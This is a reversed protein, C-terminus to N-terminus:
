SFYSRIDKLSHSHKMKNNPSNAKNGSTVVKKSAPSLSPKPINDSKITNIDIYQKVSGGQDTEDFENRKRKEIDQKVAPMKKFFNVIPSTNKLIEREAKVISDPNEYGIKNIINSTTKTHELLILTIM